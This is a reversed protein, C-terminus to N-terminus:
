VLVMYDIWYNMSELFPTNIKSLASIWGNIILTCKFPAIRKKSLYSQPVTCLHLSDSLDQTSIKTSFSGSPKRSSLPSPIYWVWLSPNTTRLNLESITHDTPLWLTQRQMTSSKLMSITSPLCMPSTSLSPHLLTLQVSSYACRCPDQFSAPMRM